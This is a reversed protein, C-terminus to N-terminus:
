QRKRLIWYAAIGVVAVVVVAAIIAIETTTLGPTPEEPEIPGDPSPAPGVGLATEAFSSGYSDTGALTAMITYEGEDPPSWMKKFLGYGDSTVTGIEIINGDPGLAQLIIPVGTAGMPASQQQYMFAMYEGMDVDSIAATGPQGSSQDTVMGQIVTSSGKSVPSMSVEVEINSPGKGIVYIRNDYLNYGVLYGDAIAVVSIWGNMEWLKTGTEADLAFLKGGRILPNTPSHEGIGTFVVGDAIIPGSGMPWSGYPAEIGANGSNFGWVEEGTDADFAHMTGQMDATYLKGNVFIGGNSNAIYQGFPYDMPDSVVKLQGTNIDYISWEMKVSDFQAYLGEGAAQFVTFMRSSGGPEDRRDFHWLEEGTILSYGVHLPSNTIGGGVAVLVNDATTPFTTTAYAGYVTHPIHTAQRIPVTKNWEIGTSWDYTGSAPRFQITGAEQAEMFGAAEFAKTSNWMSFWGNIGDLTYVLITGDDDYTVVGGVGNEFTMLWDGTFADYVHYDGPIIFGGPVPIGIEEFTAAIYPHIDWLYAIPGMQNPSLFNYLQGHNVIGETNRFIEEGTRLDVGVFGTGISGFVGGFGSQYIKYYLRGNMIIPPAFKPEYAHGGYYSYSGYEGGTLGGFTLEKTWMVHPARPAQSYPNYGTVDGFSRGTSNYGRMLWNGSISWWNRHQASIPRTWYDTPPPTEPYSEISDQQVVLETIPATAPLYTRGGGFPFTEGPYSFQFEYNGIQNPTYTLFNSGVPDSDLPGKTEISGDPKNITLMFGHFRDTAEPPIPELMMIVLVQQNVGTPNPVVSIFARPQVDDTALSISISAMLAAITLVLVLAITVSKSKNRAFKM